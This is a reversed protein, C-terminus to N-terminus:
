NLTDTRKTAERLLKYVPRPWIASMFVKRSGGAGFVSQATKDKLLHSKSVISDRVNSSIVRFAVSVYELDAVNNTNSPMDRIESIFNLNGTNNTAELVKTVATARDTVLSKPIGSVRIECQDVIILNEVFKTTDGDNLNEANNNAKLVKTVTTARDAVLSKLTGTVRIKCQDAIVSNKVLKTTTDQFATFKGGVDECRENISAVFPDFQQRSWTAFWLPMQDDMGLSERNELNEERNGESACNLKHSQSLSSPPPSLVDATREFNRSKDATKSVSTASYSYSSTTTHFSTSSSNDTSSFTTTCFTQAQAAALLYLPSTLTRCRGCRSLVTDWSWAGKLCRLHFVRECSKCRRVSKNGAVVVNECAPCVCSNM